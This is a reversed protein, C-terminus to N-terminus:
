SRRYCEKNMERVEISLSVSPLKAVSVFHLLAEHFLNSYEKRLELARGELIAFTLHIMSVEVGQDGSLVKHHMLLRSKVRDMDIGACKRTTDHLTKLLLDADIKSKLNESYEITLHPM